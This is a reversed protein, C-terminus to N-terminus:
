DFLKKVGDEAKEIEKKAKKELKHANRELETKNYYNQYYYVASATILIGIVLGWLFRRSKNKTAM